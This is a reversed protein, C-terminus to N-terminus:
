KNGKKLMQKPTPMLIKIESDYVKATKGKFNGELGFYYFERPDLNLLDESKIMPEKMERTMITQTSIMASYKTVEGSYMSATKASEPEVLRLFIKANANGVIMRAKERGVSDELDAYNQTLATIMCNVSRSKNFMNEVGRYLANSAEDIYISLPNIFPKDIVSRRGILSQLMSLIVKALTDSNQKALMSPTQVYLIVGEDNELREIFKNRSTNGIVKGISGITMQTLSTRLTTTVKTFYDRPSELVSDILTMIQLLEEDENDKIKTLSSKLTQLGNYSVYKYIDNFNLPTNDKAFQKLLLRSHVIVTTIELAINFFFDDNTPVSAVVHNIIEDVIFFHELPNIKISLDPFVTSLLMFEHERGVQVSAQYTRSLLGNDIKPDIIVLNANNFIDQEVIAEALRSKGAGTAGFGFVHGKRHKNFLYIEEFSEKKIDTLHFGKGLLVFDRSLEKRITASAFYNVLSDTGLNLKEVIKCSM